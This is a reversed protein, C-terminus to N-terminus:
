GYIIFEVIQHVQSDFLYVIFTAIALFPVFPVAKDENQAILSPVIALIASLFLAYFFLPFGLLAGMTGAVIIDGEGMAEKKLFYSLYYRLLTLGGTALLADQISDLITPTIIALALALLNLSDPIEMYRFDIMVLALLLAFVAFVIPLNWVLGLKYFLSVAILGTTLEILPYQISIKESCFGCKGRLFLWSFIPINHYWKLPTQCSQCKSSPFVISEGKPIRYIVVNLFSGILIGFVFIFIAIVLEDM